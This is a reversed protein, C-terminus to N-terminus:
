SGEHHVGEFAQDGWLQNVRQDRGCGKRYGKYAEARSVYGFRTLTREESRYYNQHYEEADAFNAERLVPTVVDKGLYEEAKAIEDEAIQAEEDNAAYIATTYSHGRDCFQGGDDTVDITRLFNHILTRYDTQSADYEVKEAEIHDGHDRYTPNEKTGFAYGSTTSTVGEMADFDAEVCWFCGGAVIVSKTEANAPVSLASASLLAAALITRIM